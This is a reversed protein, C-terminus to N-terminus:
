VVCFITSFTESFFLYWSKYIWGSVLKQLNLARENVFPIISIPNSFFNIFHLWVTNLLIIVSVCMFHVDQSHSRLITIWISSSGAFFKNTEFSLTCHMIFLYLIIFLNFLSVLNTFLRWDPNQGESELKASSKYLGNTFYVICDQWRSRHYMPSM